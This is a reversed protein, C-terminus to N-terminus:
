FEAHFGVRLTDVNDNLDTGFLVAMNKSFYWRGNVRIGTDSDDFDVYRLMADLQFSKGISTRIGGGLAIGDDDASFPGVDLSADVWSATGVFDLNSSIAHHWGAGVEYQRGDIGFDFDQDQWQGLIFVSHGVEYSGGIEFGTGDASSGDLDLDVYNIDFADYSMQGEGEAYAFAPALALLSGLLLTSKM